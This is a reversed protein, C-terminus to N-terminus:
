RMKEGTLDAATLFHLRIAPATNETAVSVTYEGFTETAAFIRKEGLLISKGDTLPLVDLGPFGCSLGEGTLKSVSEKLTWLAFFRFLPDGETYAQEAETMMRKAVRIHDPSRRELDVGIETEGVAVAAYEASHTISFRVRGTVDYPKGSGTYAINEEPIGIASLIAGVGVARLRDESLRFREARETRKPFHERCFGAPLKEAEALSCLYIDAFAPKREDM